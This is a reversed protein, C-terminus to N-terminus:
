FQHHIWLLSGIGASSVERLVSHGLKLDASDSTLNGPNQIIDSVKSKKFHVATIVVISDYSQPLTKRDQQYAKSNSSIQSELTFLLNRESSQAAAKNASKFYTKLCREVGALHQDM